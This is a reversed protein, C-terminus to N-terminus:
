AGSVATEYLLITIEKGKLNVCVEQLSPKSGKVSKEGRLELFCPDPHPSHGKEGRGGTRQQSPPLQGAANGVASSVEPLRAAERGSTGVRM